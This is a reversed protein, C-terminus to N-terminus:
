PSLLPLLVKSQLSSTLKASITERHKPRSGFQPHLKSQLLSAAVQVVFEKAVSAAQVLEAHPFTFDPLVLAQAAVGDSSCAVMWLLRKFLLPSIADEITSFILRRSKVSLIFTFIPPPFTHCALQTGLLRLSM